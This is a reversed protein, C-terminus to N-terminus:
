DRTVLGNILSRLRQIKDFVQDALEHNQMRLVEVQEETLKGSVLDTMIVLNIDRLLVALRDIELRIEQIETIKQLADNFKEM